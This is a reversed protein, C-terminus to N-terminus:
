ASISAKLAGLFRENERRRGVTVRLYGAGLGVVNVLDRVLIGRKALREPADERTRLLLFNAESPFVEVGEVRGLARLLREREAVTERARREFVEGHRLAAVAAAQAVGSLNFPLRVRELAATVKSHALSYGVRLGALRFFKSMSRVVALNEFEQVRAALTKRSYEFYAEDVVVLAETGEAVTLVDKEAVTAGTPNNPSCLFIARADAGAELVRGPEFRFGPGFEVYHPSAGRLMALFGYMGYTPVPIVVPDLPELVLTCLSDLVASAGAGPSICEEPLGTYKSLSSKLKAHRPDPYRNESRAAKAITESVVAPPPYPSENHSLRVEKPKPPPGADYPPVAELIRRLM